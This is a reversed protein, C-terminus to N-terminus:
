KNAKLRTFTVPRGSHKYIMTMGSRSKRFACVLDANKSFFTHAASPFLRTPFGPPGFVPSYNDCYLKGEKVYIRRQFKQGKLSVGYTGAYQKLNKEFQPQVRRVPPRKFFLDSSCM